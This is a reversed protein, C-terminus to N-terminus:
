SKQLRSLTKPSMRLYNAIYKNPIKQFIHPSRQLLKHYKEKPSPLLLDQEREMQQLILNELMNIYLQQHQVDQHVLEIFDSKEAIWIESKKITQILYPSNSGSLFSDLSVIINHDYGLRIIQEGQESIISVRLSGYKIYYIKQDTTDPMKLMDNRNFIFVKKFIGAALLQEIM